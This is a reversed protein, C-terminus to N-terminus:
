KGERNSPQEFFMIEDVIKQFKRGLARSSYREEVSRRGQKGLVDVLREDAVVREIAKSLDQVDGPEVLLCNEEDRMIQPEWLGRTRTLIVPAGCAMAQLTATQGSPQAVNKLPTVVVRARQYLLRLEGNTLGTKVVIDKGGGSGPLKQRTVIVLKKDEVAQCLTEFDRAADNGVSLVFDERKISDDRQWYDADVGFPAVEIGGRELGFVEAIDDAAGEGLVVLKDAAKLLWGYVWRWMVRDKVRDSLGQSVYVVPRKMLGLRKLFLIPLGMADVISIIVDARRLQKLNRVIALLSFGMGTRWSILREIPYWIAGGFGGGDDDREVLGVEYRGEDFYNLGYLIDDPENNNTHATLAAKRGRRFAFLVRTRERARSM